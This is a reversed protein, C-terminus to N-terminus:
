NMAMKFLDGIISRVPKFMKWDEILRVFRGVLKVFLLKKSSRSFFIELPYSLMGLLRKLSFNKRQFIMPVVKFRSIAMVYNRYSYYGKDALTVDGKRTIRRRKLEEMVEGFLKADNPSGEYLYFVVPKLSPYEVVLILKYGKYYGKGPPYGWKYSVKQKRFLNLDLALSTTNAIKVPSRTKRFCVSGLVGNFFSVFSRESFRSFIQEADPFEAVGAFIRLKECERLDRLVSAVERSFFLAIMVIRLFLAARNVPTIGAKSLEKKVRRNDFIKLVNSLLMWRSNRLDPILPAKM